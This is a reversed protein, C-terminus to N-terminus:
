GAYVNYCISFHKGSFIKVTSHLVADAIEHINDSENDSARKKRSLYPIGFRQNAFTTISMQKEEFVMQYEGFFDLVRLCTISSYRLILRGAGPDGWFGDNVAQKNNDVPCILTHKWAVNTFSTPMFSILSLPPSSHLNTMQLLLDEDNGSPFIM